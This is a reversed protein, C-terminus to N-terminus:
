RSIRSQVDGAGFVVCSPETEEPVQSGAAQGADGQDDGVGM